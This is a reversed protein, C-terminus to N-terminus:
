GHSDGLAARHRAEISRCALIAENEDMKQWKQNHLVAYMEIWSLGGREALRAVTQRHNEYAQRQHDEVLAWDITVGRSGLIPFQKAPKELAGRLREVEARLSAITDASRGALEHLYEDKTNESCHRLRAEIDDQM